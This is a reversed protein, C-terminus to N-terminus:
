SWEASILEQEESMFAYLLSDCFHDNKDEAKNISIGQIEAMKYNELESLAYKSLDNKIVNIKHVKAKGLWFMKSKRKSVKRAEYGADVLERVFNKVGSENVYRDSSDCVIPLYNEIGLNKFEQILLSPESIPNYILLEAYINNGERKYRTLTTPDTTYGFDLGYFYGDVFELPREIEEYKTYIAGKIEAKKGLGYVDWMYADSTGQRINNETPEYSLIKNRESKSVFPNDKFTTKLNKVDDRKIISDYVYHNTISPNFDCFFFERCRQEAQDFVAKPIFLIENLWLIDCGAGHFKKENDAGLFNIQNSFINFNAIEKKRTFPNDLGFDNLRTKFDLYLTTKFENYTEKVINITKNENTSCYFIIFDIASFTKGSRSSGQLAVGKVDVNEYNEILFKLNPNVIM